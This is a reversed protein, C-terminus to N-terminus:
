NRWPVGELIGFEEADGYVSEVAAVALEREDPREERRKGASTFAAERMKYLASEPKEEGAEAPREAPDGGWYKDLERFVVECADLVDSQRSPYALAANRLPEHHRLPLVTWESQNFEIHGGVFARGENFDAAIPMKRVTKNGGFEKSRPSYTEVVLGRRELREVLETVTKDAEIFCYKLGYAKAVELIKAEHQGARIYDEWAYLVFKRKTYLDIAAVVIGTKSRNRIDQEAGTFALDVGMAVVYGKSGLSKTDDLIPHISGNTLEKPARRFARDHRAVWLPVQHFVIDAESVREMMMGRRYALDDKKWLLYLDKRSWRNPWPSKFGKRWNDPDDPDPGGAAIVLNCWQEPHQRAFTELRDDPDGARWVTTDWDVVTWPLESYTIVNNVKSQVLKMKGPVRFTNDESVVDDCEIGDPHGGSTVSEIGRAYITARTHGILCLSFGPPKAYAVAGPFILRHGPHRMNAAVRRLRKKAEEQNSGILVWEPEYGHSIAIGVRFPMGLWSRASKGMGRCGATRHYRPGACNKLGCHPCTVKPIRLCGLGPDFVPLVDQLHYRGCGLNRAVGREDVVVRACVLDAMRCADMDQHTPTKELPVPREQTSSDTRGVLEIYAGFDGRRALRMLEIYETLTEIRIVDPDTAQALRQRVRVEEALLDIQTDRVKGAKEPTAGLVRRLERIVNLQVRIANHAVLCLNNEAQRQVHGAARLLGGRESLLALQHQFYMGLLAPSSSAPPGEPPIDALGIEEPEEVQAQSKPPEWKLDHRRCLATALADLDLGSQRRDAPVIAGLTKAQERLTELQGLCTRQTLTAQRAGETDAGGSLAADVIADLLGYLEAYRLQFYRRKEALPAEPDPGEPPFVTRWDKLVGQGLRTQNV